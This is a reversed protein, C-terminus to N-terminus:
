FRNKLQSQWDFVIKSSAKGILFSKQAAKALM